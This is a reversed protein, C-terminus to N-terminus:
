PGTRRREAIDSGQRALIANLLAGPLIRPRPQSPVINPGAPEYLSRQMGRAAMNEKLRTGIPGVLHGIVAGLPGGVGAGLMVAISNASSKLASMLVGTNSFNVTGPRPILQRQLQGYQAMLQREAPTFMVHALSQGSGHLFEAIRESTKQAGFEIKGEPAESLRSWLGQRVGSWEPSDHGLVDRMRQALRVSVGKAGVRSEGYLYNATENPTAGNGNRGIIREMARGVDDGGGQSRFTQQHERYAARADRLATLARDDGTFLGNAIANEVHDDFASIVRGVARRDATGREASQAMSVLRKRAQDYGQLNVGTINEPNPQGFPDARNQIKLRAITNDIDQIARSAIPTTVDDIIVPDRGLTLSGKIKQGIGEFAAAHIEGPLAMATDYLGGYNVKSAREINRAAESAMEGAAVPSDVIQQGFQDLSRGVNQRADALAPAQGGQFFGEAVKQAPAGRAGRLAANEMIQQTVDGSAQGGSLPVDVGAVRAVNGPTTSIGPGALRGIGRAAMVAAPGGALAGGVRFFPEAATDKTAQGAAESALAPAAVQTVARRLLGGPGALAAPAFEGLTQAYEGATTKPEYFKGTVSEVGKQIDASGYTPARPERPKVDVGIMRGVLQSAKDIGRAGFEAIDGPAGALGIVGKPIGIAASKAIDPLMGADSPTMAQAPANGYHTDMVRTIEDHSTGSPFAFSSGDPGQVNITMNM